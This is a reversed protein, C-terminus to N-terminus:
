SKVNKWTGKFQMIRDKENLIEYDVVKIKKGRRSEIYAQNKVFIGKEGYIYIYIYM